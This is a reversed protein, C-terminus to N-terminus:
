EGFEKKYLLGIAEEVIHSKRPRHGEKLRKVYIDLIQEEAKKDFYYSSKIKDKFETKKTNETKIKAMLKLRVKWKRRTDKASICNM